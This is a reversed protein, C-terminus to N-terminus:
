LARERNMQDRIIAVLEPAVKKEPGIEAQPDDRLIAAVHKYRRMTSAGCVKEAVAEDGQGVLMMRVAREASDKPARARRPTSVIEADSVREPAATIEVAGQQGSGSHVLVPRADSERVPAPQSGGSQQVAGQAVVAATIVDTSREAMHAIGESETAIGHWAMHRILAVSRRPHWFRRSPPITRERNVRSHIGWLFPSITSLLSFAVAAATVWGWHSANLLGSVLGMVYSGLRIGGAPIDRDEAHDASLALFVGIMEIALAFGLALALAMTGGHELKEWEAPVIHELAWGAQGWVAAGNVLLLVAMLVPRGRKSRASM